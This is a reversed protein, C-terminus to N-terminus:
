SISREIGQSTRTSKVACHQQVETDAARHPSQQAAAARRRGDWLSPYHSVALRGDLRRDRDPSKDAPAQGLAM